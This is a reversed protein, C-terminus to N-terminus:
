FSSENLGNVPPMQESLKFSKFCERVNALKTVALLTLILLPPSGLLGLDKLITEQPHVTVVWTVNSIIKCLGLLFIFMCFHSTLPVQSVM